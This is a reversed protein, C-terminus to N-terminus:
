CRRMMAMEISLGPGFSTAVVNGSGNRMTRLMDLVILVTPSSSNGRTRYIERSAILKENTLCMASQVGDIIAEGGPHLAWDFDSSGLLANGFYASYESVLSSFMRKVAKSALGPISRSLVTRPGSPTVLFSMHQLTDPLVANDFALLEYQAKRQGRGLDNVLVFAAAADSFLAAAVCVDEPLSKEAAALESRVNPTCLECAYALVRAPRRRATAALAMQAAARMISLGGACGVGHLLSRDVNVSLGLQQNVLLDYGPNGQSTCTVAVTHTIDEREVGAEQLAKECAQVALGVGVKRFHTDLDTITPPKPQAAFGYKADIVSARTEIGTKKNIALLKQLGKSETDHYKKALSELDSPAILHDPYQSGLGIIWVRQASRDDYQQRMM